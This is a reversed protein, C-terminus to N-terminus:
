WSYFRTKNRTKNIHTNIHTKNIDVLLRVRPDYEDLIQGRLASSSSVEVSTDVFGNLLRWQSVNNKNCYYNKYFFM